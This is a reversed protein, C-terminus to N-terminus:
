SVPDSLNGRATLSGALFYAQGNRTLFPTDKNQRPRRVEPKDGDVIISAIYDDTNHVEVEDHM